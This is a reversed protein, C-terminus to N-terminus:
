TPWDPAVLRAALRDLQRERKRLLHRIGPELPAKLIPGLPEGLRDLWELAELADHHEGLCDQLRVLQRGQQRPDLGLLPMLAEGAYRAHKVALRLEHLTGPDEHNARLATRLRKWRKRLRRLVAPALNGRAMVLRPDVLAVMLRERREGFAVSHAHPAFRTRAADQDRELSLVLQRQAGPGLAGSEAALAALFDRRVDAARIDELEIAVNRLDRRVRAFLGPRLLPKLTCLLSRLSRAAVRTQHVPKRAASRGVRQLAEDLRARRAEILDRLQAASLAPEGSKM